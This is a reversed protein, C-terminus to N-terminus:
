ASAHEHAYCDSIYMKNWYRHKKLSYEAFDASAGGAGGRYAICFFGTQADKCLGAKM